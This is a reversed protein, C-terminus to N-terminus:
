VNFKKNYMYILSLLLSLGVLMQRLGAYSVSRQGVIGLSLGSIFIASLALGGVIKNLLSKDKNM